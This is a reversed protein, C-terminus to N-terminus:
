QEDTIDAERYFGGKPELPKTNRYFERHIYVSTSMAEVTCPRLGNFHIPILYDIDDLKNKSNIHRDSNDLIIIGGTKLKKLAPEICNIKTGKGSIGGDIVVVDFEDPMDVENIGNIFEEPNGRHHVVAPKNSLQRQILEVWMKDHEVGWYQVNQNLWWLTSNGLGWEFVLAGDWVINELYEICPYTYLPLPKKTSTQPLGTRSSELFGYENAIIREIYAMHLHEIPLKVGNIDVAAVEGM